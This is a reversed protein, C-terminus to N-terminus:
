QELAQLMGEIPSQTQDICWWCGARMMSDM